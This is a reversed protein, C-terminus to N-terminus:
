GFECSCEIEESVAAEQQRPHSATLETIQLRLEDETAKQSAVKKQRTAETVQLDALRSEVQAIQAKLERTANSRNASREARCKQKMLQEVATTLALLKDQAEQRATETQTREDKMATLSDTQQKVVKAQEDSAQEAGAM